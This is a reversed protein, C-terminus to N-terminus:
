RAAGMLAAIADRHVRRSGHTKVSALSGDAIWRRTTTESVSMVDAAQKTTLYEAPMREDERAAVATLAGAREQVRRADQSAELVLWEIHELAEPADDRRLRYEAIARALHLGTLEDFLLLAARM